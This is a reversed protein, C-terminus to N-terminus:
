YKNMPRRRMWICNEIVSKEICGKNEHESEKWSMIVIMVCTAFLFDLSTKACSLGIAKRNNEQNENKTERGWMNFYEDQHESLHFTLM